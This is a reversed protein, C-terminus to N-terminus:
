YTQLELERKKLNLASASAKLSFRSRAGTESLSLAREARSQNSGFYIKPFISFCQGHQSFLALTRHLSFLTQLQSGFNSSDLQGGDVQVFNQPPVVTTLIVGRSLKHPSCQRSRPPGCDPPVVTPPVVTRSPTPVVTPPVLTANGECVYRLLVSSIKVVSPLYLTIKVLLHCSRM